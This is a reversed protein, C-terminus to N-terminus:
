GSARPRTASRIPLSPPSWARISVPAACVKSSEKRLGESIARVAFKTAAYAAGTPQVVFGSAALVRATGEGIGGSAGTILVAKNNLSAM